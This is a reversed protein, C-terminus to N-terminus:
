NGLLASLLNALRAEQGVTADEHRAAEESQAMEALQASLVRVAADRSIYVQGKPAIAKWGAQDQRLEWRVKMRRKKFDAGERSIGVHSEIQVQAWGKGRKTEVKEVRLEDFIIVPTAVRLPEETRLVAVGADSGSSIGRAVEEPAPRAQETSITVSLPVREAAETAPDPEGKPAVVPVREAAEKASRKTSFKETEAREEAVPEDRNIERKSQRSPASETKATEVAAGSDVVFRFFRPQGRSRWYAARYDEIQWGSRVLSYFSHERPNVVIGVHGRWTVLDGAQEHRVRRFNGNGAYLDYSSAYAYQYGAAAYIEHVM